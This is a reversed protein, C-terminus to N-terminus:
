HEEYGGLVGFYFFALPNEEPPVQAAFNVGTDLLDSPRISSVKLFLHGFMSAPNNTYASSFILSVNQPQNFRDFFGDWKECQINPYKLGLRKQLYDYRARFICFPRQKLVGLEKTSEISEITAKLEAEPNKRGQESLFFDGGDIESQYRFFSKHQYHLLNLWETEYAVTRILEASPLNAAQSQNINLFFLLLSFIM